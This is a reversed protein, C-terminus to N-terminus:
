AHCLLSFDRIFASILVVVVYTFTSLPIFGYFSVNFLASEMCPGVQKYLSLEHTAAASAASKRLGMDERIIQKPKPPKNGFAFFLFSSISTECESLILIYYM